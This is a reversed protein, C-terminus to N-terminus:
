PTILGNVALIVGLDALAHTLVPLVLGGTKRVLLRWVSAAFFLVFFALPLWGPHILTYLVLMHFGAYLADSIWRDPMLGRWFSEELLPHITISYFVFIWVPPGRLHWHTLLNQLDVTPLVMRPWLLQVLPWTLLCAAGLGVFLSLNFGRFLRATAFVKWRLCLLIGFHYLAVAVLPHDLFNLGILTAWAPLLGWYLPLPSNKTMM